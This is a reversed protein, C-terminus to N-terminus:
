KSNRKRRAYSGLIVGASILLLIGWLAPNSTDGTKVPKQSTSGGHSSANNGNTTDSGGSGGTTTRTTDSNKTNTLEISSKYQKSKELTVTGEGSIEYPFSNANLVNGDKDTEKVVYSVTDPMNSQEFPIKVTVTDNQKLEANQVLTLSGDGAEKFVGAYFTDSVKTEQGDVVVRKKIDIKGELYFGDPLYYYNNNVYVAAKPSDAKSITASNNETESADTVNYYFSRGGSVQITKNLATVKNDNDLEFIYYTGDPVDEFTVTGSDANQISVTKIYDNGYPVTGDKDLFLGIKFSEDVAQMPTKVFTSQDIYYLRKTVTIGTTETEKKVAKPYAQVDYVWGENEEVFPISLLMPTVTATSDASGILLYMGEELDSYSIKGEGDSVAETPTLTTKGVTAALTEAASYWDGASELKEFDVGASSMSSTLVFHVNGDFSVDAVRYLELKVGTLPTTKGDEDTQQVTLNLSGKKGAEYSGAQVTGALCCTLMVFMGLFALLKNWMKFKKKKQKVM